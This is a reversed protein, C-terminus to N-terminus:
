FTTTHPHTSELIRGCIRQYNEGGVLFTSEEGRGRTSIQHSAGLFETMFARGAPRGQKRKWSVQPFGAVVKHPRRCGEGAVHTLWRLLPDARGLGAQPGPNRLKLVRAMQPQIMKQQPTLHCRPCQLPKATDRAEVWLIGTVCVCVCNHCSVRDGHM